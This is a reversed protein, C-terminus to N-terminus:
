KYLNHLDTDSKDENKTKEEQELIESPKTSKKEEIVEEKENERKQKLEKNIDDFARRVEDGNMNRYSKTFILRYILIIIGVGVLSTLIIFLINTQSDFKDRHIIGLKDVSQGIYDLSGSTRCKINDGLVAMYKIDEIKKNKGLYKSDFKILYSMENKGDLYYDCYNITGVNKGNKDFLGVSISIPLKDDTLNKIGNFHIGENNFYIGKYSFNDTHITTDVGRPILEKIKYNEAYVIKVSLCVLLILGIKIIRKM